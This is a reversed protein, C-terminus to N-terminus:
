KLKGDNKDALPESVKSVNENAGDDNRQEQINAASTITTPSSIRVEITSEVKSIDQLELSDPQIGDRSLLLETKEVTENDEPQNDVVLVDALGTSGNTATFTKTTESEEGIKSPIDAKSHEEKEKKQVVMSNGAAQLPTERIETNLASSGLELRQTESAILVTKNGVPIENINGENQLAELSEIEIKQKIETADKKKGNMDATDETTSEETQAADVKKESSSIVDVVDSANRIMKENPPEVTKEEDKHLITTESCEMPTSSYNKDEENAVDEIPDLRKEIILQSSDPIEQLAQPATQPPEPPSETNNRRETISDIGQEQSTKISNANTEDDPEKQITGIAHADLPDVENTKKGDPLNADKQTHTGSVHSETQVTDRGSDVTANIIGDSAEMSEAVTYPSIEKQNADIESVYEALDEAANEWKNDPSNTATAEIGASAEEQAIVEDSPLPKDTNGHSAIKTKFTGDTENLADSQDSRIGTTASENSLAVIDSRGRNGTDNNGGQNKDSSLSKSDHKAGSGSSITGHSIDVQELAKGNPHEKAITAKQKDAPALTENASKLGDGSADNISGGTSTSKAISDEEIGANHSIQANKLGSAPIDKEASGIRVMDAMFDIARRASSVARLKEHASTSEQGGSEVVATVNEANISVTSSNQQVEPTKSPGSEVGSKELDNSHSEQSIDKDTTVQADPSNELLANKEASEINELMVEIKSDTSDRTVTKEAPDNSNEAKNEISVDSEPIKAATINQTFNPIDAQAKLQERANANSDASKVKLQKEDDENRGVSNEKNDRNMENVNVHIDDRSEANTKSESKDNEVVEGIYENAKPTLPTAVTVLKDENESPASVNGIEKSDTENVLKEQDNRNDAVKDCSINGEKGFMNSPIDTETKQEVLSHENLTDANSQSKSKADASQMDGETEGISELHDVSESNTKETSAEGVETKIDEITEINKQELITTQTNDTVLVNEDSAKLEASDGDASRDNTNVDFANKENDSSHLQEVVFQEGDSVCELTNGKIVNKDNVRAEENEQINLNFSKESLGSDFESEPTNIRDMKLSYLQAHKTPLNTTMIDDDACKKDSNASVVEANCESSVDNNALEDNAKDMIFVDIQADTPNEIVTKDTNPESMSITDATPTDLTDDDMKRHSLSDTNEDALDDHEEDIANLTEISRPSAVAQDTQESDNSDGALSRPSKENASSRSTFDSAVDDGSAASEMSVSRITELRQRVKQGKAVKSDRPLAKIAVGKVSIETAQEAAALPEIKVENKPLLRCRSCGELEIKKRIEEESSRFKSYGKDLMGDRERVLNEFYRAAFEYINEPQEKLVSKALNKMLEVM